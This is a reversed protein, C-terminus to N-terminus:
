LATSWFDEEVFECDEWQREIVDDPVIEDAHALDWYSPEDHDTDLVEAFTGEDALICLYRQKLELRQEANLEHINM